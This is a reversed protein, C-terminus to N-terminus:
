FDAAPGLDRYHYRNNRKTMKDFIHNQKKIAKNTSNKIENRFRDVNAPIKLNFNFHGFVARDVGLILDQYVTMNSELEIIEPYLETFGDYYFLERGDRGTSNICRAGYNVYVFLLEQIQYKTKLEELEMKSLILKKDNSISNFKEDLFIASKGESRFKDLYYEKTELTPDIEKSISKLTRYFQSFQISDFKATSWKVGPPSKFDNLYKKAEYKKYYEGQSIELMLFNKVSDTQIMLISKVTDTFM